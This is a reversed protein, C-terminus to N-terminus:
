KIWSSDNKGLDLWAFDKFTGVPRVLAPTGGVFKCIKFSEQREIALRNRCAVHGRKRDMRSYDMSWSVTLTKIGVIYRTLSQRELQKRPSMDSTKIILIGHLSTMYELTFLWRRKM